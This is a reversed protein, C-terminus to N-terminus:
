VVYLCQVAPVFATVGEREM